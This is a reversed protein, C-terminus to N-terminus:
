SSNNFYISPDEPRATFDGGLLVTVQHHVKHLSDGRYQWKDTTYKQLSDGRYQWKTTPFKQLSDGRYQWM